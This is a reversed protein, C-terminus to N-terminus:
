DKLDEAFDIRIKAYLEESTLDDYPTRLKEQEKDIFNGIAQLDGNEFLYQYAMELITYVTDERNDEEFSLNIIHLLVGASFARTDIAQRLMEKFRVKSFLSNNKNEISKKIYYIDNTSWGITALLKWWASGEPSQSDILMEDNLTFM